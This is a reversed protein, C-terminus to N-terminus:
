DNDKSTKESREHMEQAEITMTAIPRADLRQVSIEEDTVECFGYTGNEIRELAEDIKNILKRERDRARLELSKDIESSARDTIDPENQTTTQLNHITDLSEKLLEEKWQLLKQRFYAKMMPGMFNPDKKPDYDPPLLVELYDKDLGKNQGHSSNSM